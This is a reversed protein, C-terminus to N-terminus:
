VRVLVAMGQGGGICATAVGFGGGTKKLRYLLHTVLRAGSAALPHGIGIAGGDVNLKDLPIKLEKNVALVQCAFAENIEFLAIDKIQKETKQLLQQTAPVPGIGMITPDCGTVASALIEGLIECGNEKAFTETTVVLACAGDVMGSANGATVLGDKKFVSKLKNLSEINAEPRIHEDKSLVKAGEKAPIEFPATEDSMLGKLYAQEALKQSRLAFEDAESRSIKYKEGLKEATLAMPLKAYADTLGSMLSDELEGHNMRYGFRANRLVFPAQSMSETGGVLVARAEGLRLRRYGDAIAEFGSGCLRNLTLAPTEVRLECRLAVHRALYSADAATQQVNGITVHDIASLPIRSQKLAGISASVSMDTASFSKLSGGFSGFPTRKAAVVVIKQNTM